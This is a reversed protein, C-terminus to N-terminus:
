TIEKGGFIPPKSLLTRYTERVSMGIGCAIGAMFVGGIIYAVVFGGALTLGLMMMFGGVLFLILGIGTWFSWRYDESMKAYNEKIM